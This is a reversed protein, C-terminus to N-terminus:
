VQVGDMIVVPVCGHTVADEMRPSWGDGPLVLCYRARSLLVSYDGPVDRADGYRQHPLVFSCYM